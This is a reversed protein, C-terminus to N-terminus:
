RGMNYLQKVEEVSLARNYVRVEDITGTFPATGNNRSGINFPGSNITSSNGTLGDWGTTVTQSVGNLYCKVGSPLLNGSYTVTFHQFSTNSNTPCNVSLNDPFGAQPRWDLEIPNGAVDGRYSVMYGPLAAGSEVKGIIVSAATPDPVATKFWFSFTTASTTDIDLNDGANIYDDVGDFSLAQGVKGIVPSTTTSMNTITGNNGQGSRDYATNAGWSIDTGNFSWLGLLGNTIRNNQSANAVTENQDYLALVEAASLARNYIRVDDIKGNWYNGSSNQDKGIRVPLDNTNPTLSCAVQNQQAGDVYLTSTNLTDDFVGVVHYWQGTNAAANGLLNCNSGVSNELVFLWRNVTGFGSAANYALLYNHNEAAGEGSTGKTIISDWTATDTRTLTDAYVWAAVSYSSAMDLASNDAIEVYQSSGNFDLAKGRKGAVWTAGSISGTNSNGSSDGASTSTGENFNWYGQLGQNSVTKRVTKGSQYLRAVEAASLARNYFRAEDLDGIYEFGGAANLSGFAPTNTTFGLSTPTGASVGTKLNGDLYLIVDDTTDSGAPYVATFNHWKGDNREDLIFYRHHNVTEIGLRKSTDNWFIDFRQGPNNAGYNFLVMDGTGDNFKFWISFTLETSPFGNSGTIVYDNGDYRSAKKYKGQDVLTAGTIAGHNGRGSLDLFQGNQVEDFNWYGVLGLNNPARDLVAADAEFIPVFLVVLLVLLFKIKFNNIAMVM